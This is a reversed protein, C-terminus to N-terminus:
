AFGVYLKGFMDTFCCWKEPCNNENFHFEPHTHHTTPSNTPKITSETTTTETTQVQTTPLPTTLQPTTSFQTTVVPTTPEETPDVGDDIIIENGQFMGDSGYDWYFLVESVDNPVNYITYNQNGENKFNQLRSDYIKFQDIKSPFVM